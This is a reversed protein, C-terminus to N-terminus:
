GIDLGKLGGGIACVCVSCFPCMRGRGEGICGAIPNDTLDVGCRLSFFKTDFDFGRFCAFCCIDADNGKEDSRSRIPEGAGFFSVDM